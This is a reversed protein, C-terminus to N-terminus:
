PSMRDFLVVLGVSALLLALTLAIYLFDLM